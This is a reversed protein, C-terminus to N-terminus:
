DDHRSRRRTRGIRDRARRRRAVGLEDDIVQGNVNQLWSVFHTVEPRLGANRWEIRIQSYGADMRRLEIRLMAKGWDTFLYALGLPFFLLLLACGTDGRPGRKLVVLGLDEYEVAWNDRAFAQTFNEVVDRRPLKTSVRLEGNALNHQWAIVVAM